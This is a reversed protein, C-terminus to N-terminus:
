NFLSAPLNDNVSISTVRYVTEVTGSEAIQQMQEIQPQMRAM